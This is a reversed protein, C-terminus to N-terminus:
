GSRYSRVDFNGKVIFNYKRSNLRLIQQSIEVIIVLYNLWTVQKRPNSTSSTNIRGSVQSNTDSLTELVLSKPSSLKSESKKEALYNNQDKTLQNRHKEIIPSLIMLKDVETDNEIIM